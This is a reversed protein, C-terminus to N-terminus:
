YDGRLHMYEAIIGKMAMPDSGEDLKKAIYIKLKREFDADSIDSESGVVVYEPANAPADPFKDKKSM